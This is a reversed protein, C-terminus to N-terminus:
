YKILVSLFIASCCCFCLSVPELPTNRRHYVPLVVHLRLECTSLIRNIAEINEIESVLADMRIANLIFRATQMRKAYRLCRRIENISIASSVVEIDNLRRLKEVLEILQVVTLSDMTIHLSQISQLREITTFSSFETKSTLRLQELPVHGELLGTYITQMMESESADIITLRRLPKLQRFISHITSPQLEDDWKGVIALQELNKLRRLGLLVSTLITSRVSRGIQLRQIQPNTIFFADVARQFTEIHCCKLNFEILKPQRVPTLRYNHTSLTLREVKSNWALLDNLQQTVHEKLTVDLSTLRSFFPRLEALANVKDIVCTIDRVNPCYNAILHLVISNNSHFQLDITEITDDFTRLFDEWQWISMPTNTDSACSGLDKAYRRQFEDRGIHRLRKCTGAFSSLEFLDLGGHEFIARLCDDNLANLINDPSQADPVIGQPQLTLDFSPDDYSHKVDGVWRIRLENGDIGLQLLQKLADVTM